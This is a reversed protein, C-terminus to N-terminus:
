HHSKRLLITFLRGSMIFVAGITSYWCVALVQTRSVCVRDTRHKPQTPYYDEVGGVDVEEEGEAGSESSFEEDDSESAVMSIPKSKAAVHSLVPLQLLVDIAVVGM